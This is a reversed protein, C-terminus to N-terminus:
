FSLIQFFKDIIIAIADIADKHAPKNTDTTAASVVPIASLKVCYRHVMNKNTGM